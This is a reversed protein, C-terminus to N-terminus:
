RLGASAPKAQELQVVVGAADADSASAPGSDTLLDAVGCVEFLRRVPGPQALVIFRIDRDRAHRRGELLVRLGTSDLFRVSRLDLVLTEPRAALAIGLQLELPPSSVLDLEGSVDIEATTGRLRSRIECASPVQM